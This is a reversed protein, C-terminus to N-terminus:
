TTVLPKKTDRNQISSSFKEIKMWHRWNARRFLPLLCFLGASTCGLVAYGTADHLTGEIAVSGYKYAWSTLFLSRLLNTLFAFVVAAGVLLIKKWFRDLFIAALFSGAFLCGMLSRIGSCADAVGVQGHPLILVNGEQVLPLGLLSFVTFVVTVVRRLLFLSIANEVASLLPASLLWIVSPFLFQLMACVRVDDRLQWRGEDRKWRGPPLSFYLMGPIVFAMGVALALSGPQSVGVGARYIAGFLFVLLGTILILGMLVSIVRSVLCPLREPQSSVIMLRLRHWRDYIVYGAFIPVLWGFAYDPKTQWWHMQDVAVFSFFAMAILLVLLFPAPLGTSFRRLQLLM